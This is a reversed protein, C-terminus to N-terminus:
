EAEVTIPLEIKVDGDEIKATYEGTKTIIADLLVADKSIPVGHKELICTAIDSEHIKKYLHGAQDAKGTIVVGEEKLAKLQELLAANRTTETAHVAERQTEVQAIRSTTAREALKQPFLYNAAYGSSVAVVEGKKGLKSVNKTLIVQM